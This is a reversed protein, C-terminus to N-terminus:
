GSRTSERSEPNLIPHMCFPRAYPTCKELHDAQSQPNRSMCSPSIFIRNRSVNNAPNTATLRIQTACCALVDDFTLVELSNLTFFGDGSTAECEPPMPLGAVPDAEALFRSPMSRCVGVPLPVRLFVDAATKGVSCPFGFAFILKLALAPAFAPRLREPGFRRAPRIFSLPDFYCHCKVGRACSNGAITSGSTPAREAFIEAPLVPRARRGEM